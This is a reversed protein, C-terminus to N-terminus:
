SQQITAIVHSFLTRMVVCKNAGFTESISNVYRCYLESTPKLELVMIRWYERYASFECHLMNNFITFLTAQIQIQKANRSDIHM